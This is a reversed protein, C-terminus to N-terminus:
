TTQGLGALIIGPILGCFIIALIGIPLCNVVVVVVLPGWHNGVIRRRRVVSGQVCPDRISEAAKAEPESPEKDEVVETPDGDDVLMPRHDGIVNRVVVM